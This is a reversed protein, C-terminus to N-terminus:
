ATPELREKDRSACVKQGPCYFCIKERARGAGPLFNKRCAGRPKYRRPCHALIPATLSLVNRFRSFFGMNNYIIDHRWWGHSSCFRVQQPKAHNLTRLARHTLVPAHAVCVRPRAFPPKSTIIGHRRSAAEVFGCKNRNQM